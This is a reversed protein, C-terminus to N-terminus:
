RSLLLLVGSAIALISLVTSLLASSLNLFPWAGQAILWIALLTTGLNGPIRVHQSM